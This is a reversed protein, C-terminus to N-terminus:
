VWYGYDWWSAVVADKPTNKKMWDLADLWDNIAIPFSSGGNLITPRAHAISSPESGAPYIMPILLLGIIGTVF